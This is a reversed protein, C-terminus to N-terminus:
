IEGRGPVKGAGYGKWGRGGAGSAVGV